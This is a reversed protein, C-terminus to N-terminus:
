EQVILFRDCSHTEYLNLANFKKINATEWNSIFMKKEFEDSVISDIVDHIAASRGLTYGEVMERAMREYRLTASLAENNTMNSSEFYDLSVGALFEAKKTWGVAKAFGFCKAASGAENLTSSYDPEVLFEEISYKKDAAFLLM